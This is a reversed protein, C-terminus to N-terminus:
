KVVGEKKLYGYVYAGRSTLHYYKGRAQSEEYYILTAGTLFSIVIDCMPRTMNIIANEFRGKTKNLKKSRVKVVNQIEDKTIGVADPNKPHWTNDKIVELVKLVEEKDKINESMMELQADTLAVDKFRDALYKKM